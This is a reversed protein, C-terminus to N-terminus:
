TPPNSTTKCGAKPTSATLAAASRPDEAGPLIGLIDWATTAAPPASPPRLEVADAPLEASLIGGLRAFAGLWYGHDDSRIWGQTPSWWIRPPEDPEAPDGAVPDSTM